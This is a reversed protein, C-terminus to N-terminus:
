LYPASSQIEDEIDAKGEFEELILRQRKTLLEKILERTQRKTPMQSLEKMSVSEPQTPYLEEFEQTMEDYFMEDKEKEQDLENPVQTEFELETLEIDTINVNFPNLNEIEKSDNPTNKAFNEPLNENNFIEVNIKKGERIEHDYDLKKELEIQSKEETEEQIDQEAQKADKTEILDDVVVLKNNSEIEENGFQEKDVETPDNGMEVAKLNDQQVLDKVNQIEKYRLSSNLLDNLEKDIRGADDDNNINANDNGNININGNDNDNDNDIYENFNVEGNRQDEEEISKGQIDSINQDKLIFSNEEEDDEINTEKITGDEHKEFSIIENNLKINFCTEKSHNIFDKYMIMRKKFYHSWSPHDILCSTLIPQYELQPKQLPIMSQSFLQSPLGISSPPPTIDETKIFSINSIQLTNLLIATSNSQNAFLNLLKLIKLFIENKGKSQVNLLNAIDEVIILDYKKDNKISEIFIIFEGLSRLRIYEM